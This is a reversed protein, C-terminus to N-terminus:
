VLHGALVSSLGVVGSALLLWRCLRQALSGTFSSSPLVEVTGSAARPATQALPIIAGLGFLIGATALVSFFRATRANLGSGSM